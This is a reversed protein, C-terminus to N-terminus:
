VIVELTKAKLSDPTIIPAGAVILVENVDNEDLLCTTKGEGMQILVKHELLEIAAQMRVQQLNKM